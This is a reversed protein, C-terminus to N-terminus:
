NSSNILSSARIKFPVWEKYTEAGSPMLKMRNFGERTSKYESILENKNEYVHIEKILGISKLALIHTKITKGTCQRESGYELNILKIIQYTDIIKFEISRQCILQLVRFKMPIKLTM